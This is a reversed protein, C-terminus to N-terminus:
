QTGAVQTNNDTKLVEVLSQEAQICRAHWESAEPPCQNDSDLLEMYEVLLPKVSSNDLMDVPISVNGFQMDMANTNFAALLLAAASSMLVKNTSIRM